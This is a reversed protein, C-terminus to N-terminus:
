KSGSDQVTLSYGYSSSVTYWNGESDYQGLNTAYAEGWAQTYFSCYTGVPVNNKALTYSNFFNCPTYKGNAGPHAANFATQAQCAAACQSPDYPGTYVSMGAYTDQGTSSLPAQIGGGLSAPGTFNAYSPPPANKVYGNSAAIVVHFSQGNSDQPGRWQGKNTATTNSVPLGWLTCRYNATSSPNPCGAAPEVSPDREIYINFSTCGAAADCAEQCAITNYSQMSLLGMYGNQSTSGQLNSFVLYYGQPTAANNSINTYVPNALFASDTDPSTTPAYGNTEAACANRSDLGRKIVSGDLIAAAASSAAASPNYTPAQSIATVAPGQVPTPLARVAPFDIGQPAAAVLGAVACILTASRM